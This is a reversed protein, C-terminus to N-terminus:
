YRFDTFHLIAMKGSPYNVFWDAFESPGLEGRFGDNLSLEGFPIAKDKYFFQFTVNVGHYNILEAKKRFDVEQVSMIWKVCLVRQKSRYPKGEWVFLAVERGEFRKWFEYNQRITHIKGAILDDGAKNVFRPNISIRRM